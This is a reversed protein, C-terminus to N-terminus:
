KARLVSKRHKKMVYSEKFLTGDNMKLHEILIYIIELMYFWKM